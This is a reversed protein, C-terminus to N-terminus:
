YDCIGTNQIEQFIYVSLVIKIQKVCRSAFILFNFSFNHELTEDKDKSSLSNPHVTLPIPMGISKYPVTSVTGKFKNASRKFILSFFLM